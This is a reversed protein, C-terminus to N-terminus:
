IMGGCVKLVAIGKEYNGRSLGFCSLWKGYSEDAAAKHPSGATYAFNIYSDCHHSDYFDQNAIAEILERQPQTGADYAEARMRFLVDVDHPDMKETMFSGNVLADCQIKATDLMDLLRALGNAIGERTRSLPVRTVCINYLEILEIAELGDPLLPRYEPKISLAM